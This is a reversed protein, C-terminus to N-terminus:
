PTAGTEFPFRQLALPAGAPDLVIALSGNRVDARPALAVSGGLEV